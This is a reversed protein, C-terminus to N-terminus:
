EGMVKARRAQLIHLVNKGYAWEIDQPCGYHEEIALATKCLEEIQADTLTPKDVKDPEVSVWEGGSGKAKVFAKEKRAIRIEKAKYLKKDVIYLDSM